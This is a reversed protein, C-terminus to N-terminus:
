HVFFIFCSKKLQQPCVRISDFVPFLSRALGLIVDRAVSLSQRRPGCAARATVHKLRAQEVTYLYLTYSVSLLQGAPSLNEAPAISSIVGYLILALFFRM